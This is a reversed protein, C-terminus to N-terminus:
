MSQPRANQSWIVMFTPLTADNQTYMTESNNHFLGFCERLLLLWWKQSVEITPYEKIRRNWIQQPLIASLLRDTWINYFSEFGFKNSIYMFKSTEYLFDLVVYLHLRKDSTWQILFSKLADFSEELVSFDVLLTNKRCYKKRLHTSIGKSAEDPHTNRLSM